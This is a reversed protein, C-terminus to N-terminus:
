IQCFYLNGEILLCMSRYFRMWLCNMLENNWKEAENLLCISAPHFFYKNSLSYQFLKWYTHCSLYCFINFINDFKENCQLFKKQRSWSGQHNMLNEHMWPNVLSLSIEESENFIVQLTRAFKSSTKIYHFNNKGVNIKKFCKQEM